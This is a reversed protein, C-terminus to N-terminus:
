RIKIEAGDVLVSRVRLKEEFLASLPDTEEHASELVQLDAAKRLIQFREYPPLKRMVAAGKVAGEIAAAADAATAQPVTDVVSGDYPNKVEFQKDRSQWEGGYFIHM